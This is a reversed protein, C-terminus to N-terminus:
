KIVEVKSGESLNIQGSVVVLEGEALGKTVEINDGLVRGVEINKRKAVNNEFVYVYPNKVSEVLASRPIQLLNETSKRSFDVYVYTGAKLPYRANNPITIEIPYNHSVDGQPSIYSIRGEFQQDPYIDTKIKVTQGTKLQYVDTEGVMVQVKLRSIDVIKAMVLGANVYEGQVTNKQTIVGGIPALVNYDTIQKKLQDVQNRANDLNLKIEDVKSQTTGDGALLEKYTKYDNELKRVQTEAEGLSLAKVEVDVTALVAGKKVTNGLDFKLYTVKGPVSASVDADEFPLLNGTKVLKDEYIGKKAESVNVPIVVNSHDVPKKKEDLKSKNQALKFGALAALVLVAIVIIISKKM